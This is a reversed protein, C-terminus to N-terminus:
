HGIESRVKFSAAYTIDGSYSATLTNAGENIAGAPISFTTTGTSLPQRGSYSGGALTVTGTPTSQGSAAAVSVAVSVPQENTVATASPTLTVTAAATGIAQTVQVTATQTASTYYIGGANDPAYTATLRDTGVPLAGAAVNFTATGSALNQTASYSGGSLTVSGTPIPSGTTGAVTVVVSLAQATTISTASPTAMVTPAVPLQITYTASAVASQGLGPAIAIAQLTTTASIAISGSYVTSTNTPPTGDTTYYIIPGKSSDTITAMQVSSYAGAAPSIIPTATLVPSSVERVRYNGGDAIYLNGSADFAIGEPLDLSAM